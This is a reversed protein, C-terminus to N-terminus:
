VVQRTTGNIYVTRTKGKKSYIIEHLPVYLLKTELVQANEFWTRIFTSIDNSTIEYDIVDDLLDIVLEPMESDLKKLSSNFTQLSSFYKYKGERRFTLVGIDTLSKLNKSATREDLGTKHALETISMENKSKMVSRALYLQNESNGILNRTEIIHEHRKPKVTIIEGTVGDFFIFFQEEKKGGLLKKKVQRVRTFIIPHNHKNIDVIQEGPGMLSRKKKKEAIAFVEDDSLGPFCEYETGDKKVKNVKEEFIEEIENDDELKDEYEEVIPSKEKKSKKERVFLPKYKEQSDAMLDKIEDEDLTAHETILWRTKLDLLKKSIDPAFLVFEGAQLKPLKSKVDDSSGFSSLAQDVKKIDQKLSLRGLAWTGFQAFAKYDIDGPNQTAIVCGIGYKRAQKFMMKLIDKPMPKRAGAPIFPAIEDIMYLAQLKKAPNDLMWQYFKTTLAALFFEKDEQDPLTNMYIISMQTKGSKSKKGLLLDINVPVGYQFLLKKEGVNMFQIKRVLTDVEKEENIFASM